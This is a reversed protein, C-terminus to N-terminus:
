GQVQQHLGGRISHIWRMRGDVLVIEDLDCNGTRKWGEPPGGTALWVARMPGGHTVVLVREDPRSAAIAVLAAQVRTSMAEYTEGEEWGTEGRLRRLHGNPFRQEVEASTLGSWEGVDVERLRQDVEVPLGLRAGVTDATERARRLDSSV